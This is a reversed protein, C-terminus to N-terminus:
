FCFIHLILIPMCNTSLVRVKCAITAAMVFDMGKFKNCAHQQARDSCDFTQGVYKVVGDVTIIYVYVTFQEEASADYNPALVETCGDEVLVYAKKRGKNIKIGKEVQHELYENIIRNVTSRSATRGFKEIFAKAIAVGYKRDNAKQITESSFFDAIFERQEETVYRLGRYQEREMRMISYITARSVTHGFEKRVVEITAEARMKPYVNQACEKKYVNSIFKRQEETYHHDAMDGEKGTETPEALSTKKYRYVAILSINQDFEKRFTEATAVARKRDSDSQNTENNYFNYIFNRQEETYHVGSMNGDKEMEIPETLSAYKYKYVATTTIKRGFKKIFAEITSVSRKGDSQNTKNIYFNNIFQRQEETLSRTPRNDSEQMVKNRKREKDVITTIKRRSVTRGFERIFAKSIPVTREIDSDDHDTQNNYFTIIFQRQEASLPRNVVLRRNHHNDRERMDKNQEREVKIIAQITTRGVARGFKETFAKRTALIRKRDSADQEAKSSFFDVIFERQDETLPRRSM